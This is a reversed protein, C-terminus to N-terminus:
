GFRDNTIEVVEDGTMRGKNTESGDCFIGFISRGIRAHSVGDGEIAKNRITVLKVRMGAM